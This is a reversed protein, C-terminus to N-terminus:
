PLRARPSWKELSLSRKVGSAWPSQALSTCALRTRERRSVFSSVLRQRITRLQIPTRCPVCLPLGGAAAARAGSAITEVDERGPERLHCHVDIFGPSVIAGACDVVEADSVHGLKIGVSEIRGDVILLDGDADLGSSPDMLRGGSLLLKRSKEM